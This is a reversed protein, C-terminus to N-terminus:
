SYLQIFEAGPQVQVMKEFRLGLRQLIAVSALNGALTLGVIRKLKLQGYGYHMVAAAAEYALGKGRYAPLFAFGIDTEQLYDRYLLGCFGMAESSANDEVLFLGYGHQKYSQIPGDTLYQLAQQETRVGRDAINRIFDADNLLQCTFAADAATLHRIRLRPTEAIVL